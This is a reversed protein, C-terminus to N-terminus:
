PPKINEPKVELTFLFDFEFCRFSFLFGQSFGDCRRSEWFIDEGNDCVRRSTIGGCNDGCNYMECIKLIDM